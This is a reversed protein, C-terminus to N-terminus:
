SESYHRDGDRNQTTEFPPTGTLTPISNKKHTTTRHPRPQPPQPRHPPALHQQRPLQSNSPHSPYPQKPLIPLEPALLLPNSSPFLSLIPTSEPLSYAKYRRNSLLPLYISQKQMTCLLMRSLTPLPSHLHLHVDVPSLLRIQQCQRLRNFPIKGAVL